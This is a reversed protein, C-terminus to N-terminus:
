STSWPDLIRPRFHKQLYKKLSDIGKTDDRTIIIDTVYVVLLIRKDMKCGGFCLTIKRQVVFILSRFWQHLSGLDSEFVIESRLTVEEILLGKYGGRSYCLSITAGHLDRWWSNWQSFCEQHGISSTILPIDNSIDCHGVCIDDEYGPLLYWM